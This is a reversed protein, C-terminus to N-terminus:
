YSTSNYEEPTVGEVDEGYDPRKKNIIEDIQLLLMSIAEWRGQNKDFNEKTGSAIENKYLEEQQRITELWAQFDLNDVLRGLAEQSYDQRVKSIKRKSM